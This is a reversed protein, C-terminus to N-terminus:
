HSLGRLRGEEEELRSVRSNCALAVTVCHLVVERSGNTKEREEEEEREKSFKGGSLECKDLESSQSLGM